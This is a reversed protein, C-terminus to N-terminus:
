CIWWSFWIYQLCVLVVWCLFCIPRLWLRIEQIMEVESTHSLRSSPTKLSKSLLLMPVSIARGRIHPARCVHPKCQNQRQTNFSNPTKWCSAKSSPEDKRESYQKPFARVVQYCKKTGSNWTVFSMKIGSMSSKIIM